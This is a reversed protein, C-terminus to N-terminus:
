FPREPGGPCVYPPPLECVCPLAPSRPTSPSSSTSPLEITATLPTTHQSGSKASSKSARASAPHSESCLSMQPGDYAHFPAIKNEDCAARRLRRRRLIAYVVIGCLLVLFAVIAGAIIAIKTRRSMPQSVAPLTTDGGQAAPSSTSDLGLCTVDTSGQTHVSPSGTAWHGNLDSVSAIMQTNPDARNIYTFVSDNPGLTVNTVVTSNLAALTVNYPPTGGLITLGWPQCTNLTDTVNSSITFAPYAPAAPICQTTAGETVHYLPVDVGGSNGLSDVVELFLKTGIPHDVMWKLNNEDTGIFSTTPAGGVPFAIMYFPPVGNPSATIPLTRCSLLSTSVSQAGTFGWQFLSAAQAGVGSMTVMLLLLCPLLSSALRLM